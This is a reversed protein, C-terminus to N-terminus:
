AGKQTYHGFDADTYYLDEMYILQLSIILEVPSVTKKLLTYRHYIVAVIEPATVPGGKIEEAENMASLIM